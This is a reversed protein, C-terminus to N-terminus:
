DGTWDMLFLTKVNCLSGTVRNSPQALQQQLPPPPARDKGTAPAKRLAPPRAATEAQLTPPLRLASRAPRQRPPAATLVVDSEGSVWSLTLVEDNQRLAANYM